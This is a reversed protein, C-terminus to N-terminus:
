KGSYNKLRYVYVVSCTKGNRKQEIIEPALITKFSAGYTENVNFYNESPVICYADDGPLLAKRKKNLWAYQHIDSIDGIALVDKKLPMAVYFDIHAAPFWKNSIIVADSKMAGSQEDKQLINSFSKQLNNWGYMDLTFDGEGLLTKDKKGLTGPFFNIVLVGAVIIVALLTNAIALPKPLLRNKWVTTSTQKSFYAATLLILGSYAPGTWHPLVNKFFSILTAIVILPLSSLLLMRKQSTVVPLKNKFAAFTAIILFPFIVPNCYFVQGGAFTLFSEFNLGGSAVNVRSSHYLYTVFHNDINWQIVPYFLLLTIIGAIYLVPQKFWQRNYFLVYLLFGLWLFSTHIKCLMGIGAVIGFWFLKRKKIRSITNTETIGILLYLGAMWCVM